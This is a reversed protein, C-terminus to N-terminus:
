SMRKQVTFCTWWGGYRHWFSLLIVQQILREVVLWCDYLRVWTCINVLAKNFLVGACSLFNQRVQLTGGRGTKEGSLSMMTWPDSANWHFEVVRGRHITWYLWKELKLLVFCDVPLFKIISSGVFKNTMSSFAILSLSLVQTWRASLIPGPSLKFTKNWCQGGAQWSYVGSLISWTMRKTRTKDCFNNMTNNRKDVGVKEYDWINLNGDEAGSAFVSTKSPCWQFPFYLATLNITLACMLVRWKFVRTCLMDPVQVCLVADSHGQFIQVPSRVGGSSLKRRDYICISNDASRFPAPTIWDRSLVGFVIILWFYLWLLLLNYTM